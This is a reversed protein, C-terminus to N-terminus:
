RAGTTLWRSAAGLSAPTGSRSWCSKGSNGSPITASGPSATGSCMKSSRKLVIIFSHRRVSRSNPITQSASSPSCSMPQAQRM